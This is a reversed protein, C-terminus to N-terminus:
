RRARRQGPLWGSTPSGQGEPSPAMPILRHDVTFLRPVLMVAVVTAATAASGLVLYM